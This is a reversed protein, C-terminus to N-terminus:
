RVLNILLDNSEAIQQAEATTVTKGGPMAWIDPVKKLKVAGSEDLGDYEAYPVLEVVAGPAYMQLRM